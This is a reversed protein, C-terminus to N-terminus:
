IFTELAGSISEDKEGQLTSNEVSKEVKIVERLWQMGDYWWLM